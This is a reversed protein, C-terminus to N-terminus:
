AIADCDSQLRKAIAEIASAKCDSRNRDSQLRMFITFPKNESIVKFTTKCDRLLRKATAKCDSQLRKAIVRCDSRNCDSHL